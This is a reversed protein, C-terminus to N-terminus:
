NRFMIQEFDTFLGDYYGMQELIFQISEYNVVIQKSFPTYGAAIVGNATKELGDKFVVQRVYDNLERKSVVIEIIKDVFKRDVLKGNRSYDYVLKLIELGVTKLDM